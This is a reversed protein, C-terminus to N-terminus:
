QLRDLFRLGRSGTAATGSHRRVLRQQTASDNANTASGILAGWDDVFCTVAHGRDLPRGGSAIAMNAGHRDEPVPRL